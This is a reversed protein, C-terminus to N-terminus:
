GEERRSRASLVLFLEVVGVCSESPDAQEDEGNPGRVTVIRSNPERSLVSSLVPDVRRTPHEEMSEPPDHSM